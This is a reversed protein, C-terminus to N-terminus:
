FEGAAASELITKLTKNVRAAITKVEPTLPTNDILMDLNLMMLWTKGAQDEVLAIRCPMYAAFVPNFKVMEHADMPNCFQFIELRGSKIGRAQLEQSLPQHAVFKMNLAIAKSKMAEIADDASVGEALPQKIVSQNIDFQVAPPLPGKGEALAATALLVAMLLAALIRNLTNM